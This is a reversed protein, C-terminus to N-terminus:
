IQVAKSTYQGEWEVMIFTQPLWSDTEIIVRLDTNRGRLPVKFNGSDMPLNGLVGSEAGLAAGSYPYCYGADASDYVPKVLVNFPGSIAHTLILRQLTFRGTTVSVKQNSGREPKQMYPTSFEFYRTYTQGVMIQTTPHRLTVRNGSISIIPNETFLGNPLTYLVICNEAPLYGPLTWVTAPEDSSYAEMYDLCPAVNQAFTDQESMDLTATLYQGRKYIYLWLIHERFFMGCIQTDKFTYKHWASQLKQVGNIYYQYIYLTDPTDDSIVALSSSNVSGQLYIDGECPIYSPVHATISSAEKQGTLSDIGFESCTYYEGSRCGFYLRTGCSVVGTGASYANTGLPTVSATKPSLIEPGNLMFQGDEGFLILSDQMTGYDYLDVVSSTSVDIYIPDSDSMTTATENWWDRVHGARSMCFQEEALFCLRNRYYFLNRIRKDIFAPLPCSEDDGIEKAEWEFPEFSWEGDRNILVWPMTKADIALPSDPKVTEEWVGKNFEGGSDTVFRVYYDDANSAVEGVVQCIYGNPAVTPLDTFKQIKYTILNICTDSRSDTAGITFDVGDTRRIWLVAGNQTIEFGPLSEKIKALYKAVGHSNPAVGSETKVGDVYFDAAGSSPSAVTYGASKTVRDITLTWTMAYNVQKIFILAQSTWPESKIETMAVTKTNNLIFTHDALTLTKYCRYPNASVPISLYEIAEATLCADTWDGYQESVKIGYPSVLLNYKSEADREIKYFASAMMGGKQITQLPPRNQLGNVLGSYLNVQEAAQNFLRQPPSQQSVGGILNASNKSVLM